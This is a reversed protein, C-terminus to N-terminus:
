IMMGSSQKILAVSLLPYPSPITDYCRDDYLLTPYIYLFLAM